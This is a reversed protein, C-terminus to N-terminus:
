RAGAGRRVVLGPGPKAVIVRLVGPARALTSAVRRAHANSTLVKVHPGADMTAFAPVGRRDRLERVATYAALTAPTFYMLAPVATHACAHFAFTSQEMAEGLAELDRAALARRVRRAMAPAGDVWADYFPSTRRSREMGATSGVAKPGEATVAVVMRVDWGAGVRLPRATLADDGREGAPLEVFGGYVSRAASASARRAFRSVERPSAQLGAAVFAAGALAAFGSASSALGSATPFNNTSRVEARLKTNARRRVRDLLARVRRLEEAGAPRGNLVLRDDGLGRRFAVSTETFLGDLTLSISPVAPLNLRVDAKGWYKALAINTHAVAFAADATASAEARRKTM